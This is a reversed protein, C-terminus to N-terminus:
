TCFQFVFFFMKFLAFFFFRAFVFCQGCCLHISLELIFTYITDIIANFGIINDFDVFVSGNVGTSDNGEIGNSTTFIVDDLFLKINSIDTAQATQSHLKLSADCNDDLVSAPGTWEGKIKNSNDCNTVTLLSLLLLLLLLEIGYIYEIERKFRNIFNTATTTPSLESIFIALTLAGKNMYKNNTVAKTAPSVENIFSALSLVGNHINQKDFFIM